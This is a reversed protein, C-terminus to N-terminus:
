SAYALEIKRESQCQALATIVIDMQLIRFPEVSRDVSKETGLAMCWPHVPFSGNPATEWLFVPKSLISRIMSILSLWPRISSKLCHYDQRTWPGSRFALRILLVTEIILTRIQSCNFKISFLFPGQLTCFRCHFRPLCFSDISSFHRLTTEFM